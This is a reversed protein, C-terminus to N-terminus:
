EPVRGRCAYNVSKINSNLFRALQKAEELSTGQYLDFGIEGKAGIGRLAIWPTDDERRRVAFLFEGGQM